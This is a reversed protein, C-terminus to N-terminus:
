AARKPFPDDEDGRPDFTGWSDRIRLIEEKGPMIQEMYRERADELEPLRKVSRKIQAICKEGMNPIQLLDDDTASLLEPLTFIDSDHLMNCIREHLGLPELEAIPLEEKIAEALAYGFPDQEKKVEEAARVLAQWQGTSVAEKIKGSQADEQVALAIV